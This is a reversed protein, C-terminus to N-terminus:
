IPEDGTLGEFGVVDIIGDLAVVGGGGSARENGALLIPPGFTMGLM